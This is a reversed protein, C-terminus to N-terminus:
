GKKGMTREYSSLFENVVTLLSRIRKETEENIVQVSDVLRQSIDELSTIREVIKSAERDNERSSEEQSLSYNTWRKQDDAKFAIWEQRFREEALRNM